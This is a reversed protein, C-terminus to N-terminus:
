FMVEIPRGLLRWLRAATPTGPWLYVGIGSVWKNLQEAVRLGGFLVGFAFWGKESVRQRKRPSQIPPSSSNPFSFLISLLTNLRRKCAINFSLRYSIYKQYKRLVIGINNISRRLYKWFFVNEKGYHHTDPIRWSTRYITCFPFFVGFLNSAWKPSYCNSKRCIYVSIYTCSIYIELKKQSRGACLSPTAAPTWNPARWPFGSAVPQWDRTPGPVLWEIRNELDSKEQGPEIWLCVQLKTANPTYLNSHDTCLSFYFVKSESPDSVLM